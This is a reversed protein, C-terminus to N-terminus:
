RHQSDNKEPEQHQAQGFSHWGTREDPDAFSQRYSNSGGPDGFHKWGGAPPAPPQGRGAQVSRHQTEHRGGFDSYKTTVIAGPIAANRYVGPTDRHFGGSREFPALPVWGIESGNGFFGVLAPSWSAASATGTGPWWCWGYGANWFWRGYHFPVWGWSADDVWTWGYYGTSIWHGASYPSWDRPVSGPSWVEGFQSPVWRGHQDLDELGSMDRSLRRYVQSSLIQRDRYKSWEDFQDRPSASNAQFEPVSSGGRVLVSEGSSIQRIGHPGSVELRGSRVGIRTSGDDFASIRYEGPSRIAATIAATEIFAQSDFDHLLRYLVTGTQLRLRYRHYELSTVGLETEPALRLINASDFEVEARSGSSTQLRDQAVLPFNPTATVLEATEGRRVNVDGQAASIRAVIHQWDGPVPVAPRNQSNVTYPNPVPLPYQGFAGGLAFCGLACGVILGGRM